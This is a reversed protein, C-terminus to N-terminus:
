NTGNSPLRHGNQALKAKNAEDAREYATANANAGASWGSLEQSLTTLASLAVQMGAVCAPGVTSGPLGSAVRDSSGESKLGGVVDSATSVNAATGHLRVPDVTVGDSM